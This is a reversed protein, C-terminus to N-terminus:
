LENIEAVGTVTVTDSSTFNLGDGSTVALVFDSASVARGFPVVTKGAIFGSQAAGDKSSASVMMTPIRPFVYRHSFTSSLFQFSANTISIVTSRTLRPLRMLATNNTANSFGILNTLVPARLDGDIIINLKAAINNAGVVGLISSPANPVALRLSVIDILVNPTAPSADGVNCVVINGAAITAGKSEITCNHIKLHLNETIQNIDFYLAGQAVFNGFSPFHCNSFEILGGVIESGFVCNGDPAYSPPRGYVTCNLARINKGGVNMSSKLQCDVFLMNECNGHCDAAGFGLTGDNDIIMNTIIFDRCPVAGAFNGGGFSIGHKTGNPTGTIVGKQCNAIVIPYSDGAASAGKYDCNVDFCRYLVFNADATGVPCTVGSLSVDVHGDIEIQTLGSTNPIVKFNELKVQGGALKYCDVNAAVFASPILGYIKIQTASVVRSVRLMCGDRYYNRFPAFSYDTPNYIAFVEGVSLGHASGFTLTNEGAVASVSLDPIAVLPKNILIQGGGSLDIISKDGKGRLLLSTVTSTLVQTLAYSKEPILVEYGSNIANTYATFNNTATTLGGFDELTLNTLDMRQAYVGPTISNKQTGGDDTVSGAVGIFEGGGIGGSTHSKVLIVQGVALATTAIDDFTDIARPFVNYLTVLFAALYQVITSGAKLLRGTIGDFLAVQDAVASVPGIVNGLSLDLDAVADGVLAQVQSVNVADTDAVGDAVNIIQNSGMDLQDDMANPEAGVESRWLVDDNLADEIQQFRANVATTTAFGSPVAPIDIKSM